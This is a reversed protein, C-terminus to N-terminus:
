YYGLSYFSLLKLESKCLWSPKGGSSLLTKQTSFWANGGWGKQWTTKMLSTQLLYGPRSSYPISSLLRQPCKRHGKPSRKNKNTEGKRSLNRKKFPLYFMKNLIRKSFMLTASIRKMWNIKWQRTLASLYSYGNRAKSTKLRISNRRQMQCRSKMIM